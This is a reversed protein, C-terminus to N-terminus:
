HTTKSPLVQTNCPAGAMGPPSVDSKKRRDIVRYPEGPAFREGRRIEGLIGRCANRNPGRSAVLVM